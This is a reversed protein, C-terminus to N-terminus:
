EAVGAPAEILALNDTRAPKAGPSHLSFKFPQGTRPNKGTRHFAPLSVKLRIALARHELFQVPEDPLGKAYGLNQLATQRSQSALDLERENEAGHGSAAFGRSAIHINHNDPFLDGHV